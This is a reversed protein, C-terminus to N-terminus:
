PVILRIKIAEVDATSPFNGLSMNFTLAPVNSENQQAPVPNSVGVDTTNGTGSSANSDNTDSANGTGNDGTGGTGDTGGTDGTDGTNGGTDSTIEAVCSFPSVSVTGYTIFGTPCANCVEKNGPLTKYFGYGCAM